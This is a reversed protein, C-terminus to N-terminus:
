SAGFYVHLPHADDGVEDPRYIAAVHLLPLLSSSSEQLVSDGSDNNTGAVDGGALQLPLCIYV